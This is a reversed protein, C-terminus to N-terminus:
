PIRIELVPYTNDGTGMFYLGYRNGIAIEAGTEAKLKVLAPSKRVYELMGDVGLDIGAVQKFIATLVELNLSLRSVKRNQAFCERADLVQIEMLANIARRLARRREPTMTTFTMM